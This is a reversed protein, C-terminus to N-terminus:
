RGGGLLGLVDDGELKFAKLYFPTEVLGNPGASLVVVSADAGMFGVNVGYRHGWPDVPVFDVYPGQWGKAFGVGQRPTYGVDNTVLHDVLAQVRKGDMATSWYQADPEASEAADGPGVLLDPSQGTSGAHISSVDFLLRALAGTLVQVDGRVKIGRAQAVYDMISPAATATLVTMASLIITTEALSYGAARRWAPLRRM